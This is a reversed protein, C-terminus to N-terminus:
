GEIREGLHFAEVVQFLKRRKFVLPQAAARDTAPHRFTQGVLRGVDELGAARGADRFRSVVGAVEAGVVLHEAVCQGLLKKRRSGVPQHEPRGPRPPEPERNLVEGLIAATDAETDVEIGAPHDFQDLLAPHLMQLGVLLVADVLRDRWSIRQM